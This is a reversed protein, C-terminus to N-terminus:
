FKTCALIQHESFNPAVRFLASFVLFKRSFRLFKQLNRSKKANMVICISVPCSSFNSPIKRLTWLFLRTFSVFFNYPTSTHKGQEQSGERIELKKKANMIRFIRVPCLFFYCPINRLTWLFFNTFCFFFRHPVLTNGNIKVEREFKSIKKASM